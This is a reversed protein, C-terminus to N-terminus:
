LWTLVKGDGRAYRSEVQLKPLRTAQGLVSSYKYLTQEAGKVFMGLITQAQGPTFAFLESNQYRVFFAHRNQLVLGKPTRRITKELEPVFYKGTLKVIRDYTHLPFFSEAKAIAELELRSYCKNGVNQQAFSLARWRPHNSTAFYPSAASDVTFVDFSSKQLWQTLIDMYMAEKQPSSAHM